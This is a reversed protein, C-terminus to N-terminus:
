HESVKPEMNPSWWDSVWYIQDDETHEDDTPLVLYQSFNFQSSHSKNKLKKGDNARNTINHHTCQCQTDHREQLTVIRFFFFFNQRSGSHFCACICRSSNLFLDAGVVRFGSVVLSIFFFKEDVVRFGM